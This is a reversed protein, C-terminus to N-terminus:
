YGCIITAVVCGQEASACGGWPHEAAEADECKLCDGMDRCNIYAHAYNVAFLMIIFVTAMLFVKKM